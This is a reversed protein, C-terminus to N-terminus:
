LVPDPRDVPDAPVLDAVLGHESHGVRHEAVRPRIPSVEATTSASHGPMDPQRCVRYTAPRLRRFPPPNTAAPTRTTPPPPPAASRGAPRRTPRSGHRPHM